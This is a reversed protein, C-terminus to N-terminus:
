TVNRLDVVTQLLQRRYMRESDKNLDWDGSGFTYSRDELGVLPPALYKPDRRDSRAATNIRLYLLKSAAAPPAADGAANYLWEDKTKDADEDLLGDNDLDIGMAVQLDFVNDAIDEALDSTNGPNGWKVETGPFFRARSLKPTFDSANATGAWDERVYYRYEELIGLYAARKIDPSFRGDPSIQQYSVTQKGGTIKFRVTLTGDANESSAPDLEVVAFITDDQPSVLLLGEPTMAAEAIATKLASLNQPVGTPTVPGVIVSGSTPPDGTLTLTANRIQYIPTSFVGRLTLIDTGKVVKACDCGAMKKTGDAKEVAVAFGMPFTKGGYGLGPNPALVAPIPGRGLMRAARVLEYQGARLSQQMDTINVQVRAVRTNLDFLALLGLSLVALIALTVLLEALTFGAQGRGERPLGTRDQSAPVRM